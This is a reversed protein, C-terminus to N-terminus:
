FFEQRACEGNREELPEESRSDRRDDQGSEDPAEAVSRVRVLREEDAAELDAQGADEESEQEKSETEQREQDPM